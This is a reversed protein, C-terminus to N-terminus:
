SVGIHVRCPQRAAVQQMPLQVQGLRAAQVAQVLLLLAVSASRALFRLHKAAHGGMSRGLTHLHERLRGSM